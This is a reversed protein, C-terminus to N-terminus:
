KNGRHRTKEAAQKLVTNLSLNPTGVLDTNLCDVKDNQIDQFLEKLSELHQREKLIKWQYFIPTKRLRELSQWISFLCTFSAKIKPSDTEKKARIHRNFQGSFVEWELLKTSGLRLDGYKKFLKGYCDQPSDPLKVM